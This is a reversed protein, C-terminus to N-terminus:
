TIQLPDFWNLWADWNRHMWAVATVYPLRAVPETCILLAYKQLPVAALGKSMLDWPYAFPDQFDLSAQLGGFLTWPLLTIWTYEHLSNCVYWMYINYMYWIYMYVYISIYMYVYICIYMYVYIYAKVIKLIHTYIYVCTHTHRYQIMYTHPRYRLWIRWSSIVVTSTRPNCHFFTLSINYSLLVNWLDWICM